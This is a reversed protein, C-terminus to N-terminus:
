NNQNGKRLNKTSKKNKAFIINWSVIGLILCMIIHTGIGISGAILLAFILPLSKVLNYFLATAVCSVLMCPVTKLLIKLFDTKLGTKKKISLIHLVETIILGIGTGVCMYEIKFKGYFAFMFVFTFISGIGYNIFSKTELDLSNMLSSTINEMAIPILLWAALSLFRGSDENQYLFVGIPKGLVAFLAFFLSAILISANISSTIHSNLESQNGKEASESLTPIMVFAISGVVTLPTFLLPMAMGTSYGYEYMAESSSLGASMLLFPVAIATLFSSISSSARSLTIPTSSKILPKLFKKPSYLKGKFVIFSIFSCLASAFCAISMTLATVRIKDFGLYFLLVCLAIRIVQEILELISVTGYLQKGWLNGKFASYISSFILAPLLLLLLEMSLQEAFLFSLHKSFIFVIASVSVSLTVGLSLAASAIAGESHTDGLIRFKATLKSVVLPIGSSVITLLVFFVSLAVQYIGLATAGLERSLYIKFLFGLLREVMSFATLTFVAKFLKKM